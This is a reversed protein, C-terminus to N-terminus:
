KLLVKKFSHDHRILINGMITMTIRLWKQYSEAMKYINIAELITTKLCLIKM